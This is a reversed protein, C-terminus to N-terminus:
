GPHTTCTCTAMHLLFTGHEQEISTVSTITICMHVRSISPKGTDKERTTYHLSSCLTPTPLWTFQLSQDFNKMSYLESLFTHSMLPKRFSVMQGPANEITM